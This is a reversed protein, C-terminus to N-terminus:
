MCGISYKLFTAGRRTKLGEKQNKAGRSSLGLSPGSSAGPRRSVCHSFWPSLPLSGYDDYLLFEVNYAFLGTAEFRMGKFWLRSLNGV